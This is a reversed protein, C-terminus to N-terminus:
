GTNLFCYWSWPDHVNRYTAIAASNNYQFACASAMNIGTQIPGAFCRFGFADYSVLTVGSYGISQCYRGLDLGGLVTIAQAPVSTALVSAGMLAAGLASSAIIKRLRVNMM